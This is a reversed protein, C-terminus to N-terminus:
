SRRPSFAFRRATSHKLTGPKAAQDQGIALSTTRYKTEAAAELVIRALDYLFRHSVLILRWSGSPNAEQTSDRVCGMPWKPGIERTSSIPLRRDASANVLGINGIEEATMRVPDQQM